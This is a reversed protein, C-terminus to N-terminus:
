KDIYIINDRERFRVDAVREIIKFLDNASRDKDLVGTFQISKLNELKFEIDIDYWRELQVVLKELSLDDFYFKGLRWSIYQNVDVNKSSIKSKYYLAQQNPKILISNNRKSSEFVKVSGEVLTTRIYKNEPYSNVNFSTGLVRVSMSDTQVIFAKEKNKSVEFFAEGKLFVRRENGIFEVPYRLETESNLYVITNDSLRLKYEGARPVIITNFELEKRKNQKSKYHLLDSSDNSITVSNNDIIQGLRDKSLEVSKGDSLILKATKTGPNIQSLLVREQPNDQNLIQYTFFSVTILLIAIAAYKALSILNLRRNSKFAKNELKAKLLDWNPEEFESQKQINELHMKIERLESDQFRDLITEDNSDSNLLDLINKGIKNKM